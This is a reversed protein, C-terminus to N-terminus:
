RDTLDARSRPGVGASSVLSNRVFRPHRPRRAMFSRSFRSPRQSRDDRGSPSSIDRAERGCTAAQRVGPPSECAPLARRAESHMRVVGGVDLSPLGSKSPCSSEHVAIRAECRLGLRRYNSAHKRACERLWARPNDIQEGRLLALYGALLVDHALDARDEM